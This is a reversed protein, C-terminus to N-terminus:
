LAGQHAVAPVGRLGHVARLRDVLLLIPMTPDITGTPPSRLPGSLHGWQFVWVIVGFTASLSLINMVIAKVPLVVSGFALFLLVFTAVATLLAMWPLTGGLSSLEDVLM